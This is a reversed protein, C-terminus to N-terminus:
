VVFEFVSSIIKKKEVKRESLMANNAFQISRAICGSWLIVLSADTLKTADERTDSSSATEPWKAKDAGEWIM